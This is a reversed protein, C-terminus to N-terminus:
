RRLTKADEDTRTKDDKGGYADYHSFMVQVMDFLALGALWLLIGLMAIYFLGMQGPHTIFHDVLLFGGTYLMVAVAIMLVGMTIRRKAFRHPRLPDKGSALSQRRRWIARCITAGGAVFTIVAVILTALQTGDM